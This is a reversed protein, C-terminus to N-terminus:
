YDLHGDTPSQSFLYIITLGCLLVNQQWKLFSTPIYTGLHFM